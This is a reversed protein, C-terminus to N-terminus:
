DQQLVDARRARLGSGNQHLFIALFQFCSAIRAENIDECRPSRDMPIAQIALKAFSGSGSSLDAAAAVCLLLSSCGAIYTAVPSVGEPCAFRPRPCGIGADVTRALEAEWRGKADDVVAVGIAPVVLTGKGKDAEAEWRGGDV